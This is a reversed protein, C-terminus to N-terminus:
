ARLSSKSERRAVISDAITGSMFISIRLADQLGANLLLQLCGAGATHLLHQEPQQLRLFFLVAPKLFVYIHDIALNAPANRLKVPAFPNRFLPDVSIQFFQFGLRFSTESREESRAM